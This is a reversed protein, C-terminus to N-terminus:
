TGLKQLPWGLVVISLNVRPWRARTPSLTASMALMPAPARIKTLEDAIQRERRPEDHGPQQHPQDQHDGCDTLPFSRAIVGATLASMIYPPTASSEAIM